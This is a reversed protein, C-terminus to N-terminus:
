YNVEMYIKYFSPKGDIIFKWVWFFIYIITFKAGNLSNRDGCPLEHIQIKNRNYNNLLELYWIFNLALFLHKGNSLMGHVPVQDFRDNELSAQSWNVWPLLVWEKLLLFLVWNQEASDLCIHTHTQTNSFRSSHM